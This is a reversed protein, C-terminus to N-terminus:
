EDVWQKFKPYYEPDHRDCAEKYVCRFHKMDEEDLYSPTVVTVVGFWWDNDTQFMRYHFHM